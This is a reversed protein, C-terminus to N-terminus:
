RVIVAQLCQVLASETVGIDFEWARKSAARGMELLRNRDVSMEELARAMATFDGSAFVRGCSDDIVDAVCGVRDSAVVPRGCAMAENVALGWTEGFASPLILLDGLRYVVPMRSQNQFPLVRFRRPDSAAISKVEDELEGGGVMIMVFKPDLLRVANMLQVPQKKTEFKGAFLLVVSDDGIGLEGRWRRAEIELEDSPQAFRAVDISHPCRFLRSSEVGFAEYYARNAKGVYLFAAPWSFVRRLVARKIWWAPGTRRPLDLLHSDGRFLVPIGKRTLDRLAHVHSHWAWGTVHAMDPKWEMVRRVLSPNTLGFFRHTGPDRSVNPVLEFDYGKTLPIDWAVPQRFGHDSVAGQAAHWTFFVKIAVDDRMALRQYLPAYYQIPHSVVIALRLAKRDERTMTRTERTPLSPM